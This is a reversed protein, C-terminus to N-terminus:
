LMTEFHSLFSLLFSISCSWIVCFCLNALPIFALVWYISWQHDRIRVDGLGLLKIGSTERGSCARYLVVLKVGGREGRVALENVGRPRCSLQVKGGRWFRTSIEKWVSPRWCDGVPKWLVVQQASHAICKMGDQVLNSNLPTWSEDWAHYSRPVRCVCFRM